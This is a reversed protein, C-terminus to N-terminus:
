MGPIGGQKQVTFQLTGSFDFAKTPDSGAPAHYEFKATYTNAAGLQTTYIINQQGTNGAFNLSVKVGSNAWDATVSTDFNLTGPDGKFTFPELLPQLNVSWDAGGIDKITTQKSQDNVTFTLNLDHKGATAPLDFTAKLPQVVYSSCGVQFMSLLGVFFVFGISRVISM